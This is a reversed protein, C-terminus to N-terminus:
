TFAIINKPINESGYGGVMAWILCVARMYGIFPAEIHCLSVNAAHILSQFECHKGNTRKVAEAPYEYSWFRQKNGYASFTDDTLLIVNTFYTPM